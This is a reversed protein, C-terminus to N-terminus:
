REMVYVRAHEAIGFRPGRFGRRLLEKRLYLMMGAHSVLLVDESHTEILDAVQRVRTFFDDRLHRQSAHGSMWAVRIIIRWMWVPLRLRGTAFPTYDAERLAPHPIIDGRYLARATAAARPLDSTYCRAWRETEDAVPGAQVEASNYRELWARLEAATYWGGPWPELVPFHRVLGTRM